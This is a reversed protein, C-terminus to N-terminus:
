YDEVSSLEPNEWTLSDYSEEKWEQVEVNDNFLLMQEAEQQNSAKVSIIALGHTQATFNSIFTYTKINSM